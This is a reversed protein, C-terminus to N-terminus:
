YHGIVFLTRGLTSKLAHELHGLNKGTEVIILRGLGMLNYNHIGLAIYLGTVRLHPMVTGKHLM